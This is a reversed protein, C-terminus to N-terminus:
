EWEDIRLRLETDSGNTMKVREPLYQGDPYSLDIIWGSTYITQWRGTSDFHIRDPAQYAHLSSSNDNRGLLWRGLQELPIEAGLFEKTMSAGRGVRKEGHQTVLDAGQPHLRYDAMKTGLPSLAVVHDVPGEPLEGHTWELHGAFHQEGVTLSFRSRFFYHFDQRAERARAQTSASFGIGPLTDAPSPGLPSTCSSLILGFM